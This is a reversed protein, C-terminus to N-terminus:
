KSTILITTRVVAETVNHPVSPDIVVKRRSDGRFCLLTCNLHSLPIPLAPVFMSCDFGGKHLCVTLPIIVGDLMEALEKQKVSAGTSFWWM